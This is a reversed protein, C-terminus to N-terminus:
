CSEDSIGWDQKKGLPARNYWIPNDPARSHNVALFIPADPKKMEDPCHSAFKLYVRIPCREPITSTPNQVLLGTTDTEKDQKQDGNPKGFLSRSEVLRIMM